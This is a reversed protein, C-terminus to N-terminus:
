ITSFGEIPVSHQSDRPSVSEKDGDTEGNGSTSCPVEVGLTLPEMGEQQADVSVPNITPKWTTFRAMLPALTLPKIGM